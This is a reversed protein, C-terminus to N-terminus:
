KLTGEEATLPKETLKTVEFIPVGEDFIVAKVAPEYAFTRATLRQRARKLANGFTKSHVMYPAPEASGEFTTEIRYRLPATM